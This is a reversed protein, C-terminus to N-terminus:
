GCGCADKDPGAAGGATAGEPPPVGADDRAKVFLGGEAQEVKRVDTRRIALIDHDRKPLAERLRQEVGEGGQALLAQACARKVSFNDHRLHKWLLERARESGDAALRELGEVATTRIMVEEGATSASHPDASREPPIASSLIEDFLPLTSEHKLEAALMVLSWRDLYADEALDAYEATVIEAVRRAERAVRGLCAQYAKEAAEGAGGMASITDVIAATLPENPFKRFAFPHEVVHIEVSDDPDFTPTDGRRDLDRM